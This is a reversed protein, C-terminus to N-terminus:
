NGEFITNRALKVKLKWEPIEIFVIEHKYIYVEHLINLFVMSIGTKRQKECQVLNQGM